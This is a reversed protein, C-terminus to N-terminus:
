NDSKLQNFKTKREEPSLDLAWDWAIKYDPDHDSELKVCEDALEKGFLSILADYLILFIVKHAGIVKPEDKFPNRVKNGFSIRHCLEHTITVPMDEKTRLANLQLPNSYSRGDFVVANIENEVFKLGTLDQIEKTIREGWEEWIDAYEKAAAVYKPDDYVPYFNIQM